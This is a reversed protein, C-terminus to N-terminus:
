NGGPSENPEEVPNGETDGAPQEPTILETPKPRLNVPIPSDEPYVIKAAQLLGQLYDIQIKEHKQSRLVEILQDKIEDFAYIGAEKYGTKKILHFGYITEVIDSVENIDLAFVAEDFPKEMYDRPFYDLDGGKFNNSPDQSYEKALEAFDGGEELKKQIEELKTKAALDPDDDNSDPIIIIHSARVLEPRNFDEQNEDYYKKADEETVTDKGEYKSQMLKAIDLSKRYEEQLMSFEIGREAKLLEKFKDITLGPVNQADIMAQIQENIEEDTTVIGAKEIESVLLAELILQQIVTPTIERKIQALRQSDLVAIRPDALQLDVLTNIRSSMIEINDVILAVKDEEPEIEEPTLDIPQMEFTETSGSTENSDETSEKSGCGSLPLLIVLALLVPLILNTFFPYGTAKNNSQKMWITM